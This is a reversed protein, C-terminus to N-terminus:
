TKSSNKEKVWEDNFLSNNIRQSNRCESATRKCEIKFHIANHGSPIYLTIKLTKFEYVNTKCRLICEIKSFSRWAASYLTDKTNPHFIKYVNTL